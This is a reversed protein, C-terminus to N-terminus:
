VHSDSNGTVRVGIPTVHLIRARSAGCVAAPLTGAALILFLWHWVNVLCLGKLEVFFLGKAAPNVL